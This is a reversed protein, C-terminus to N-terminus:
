PTPMRLRSRLEPLFADLEAFLSIPQHLPVWFFEMLIPTSGGDPTEEIRRYVAAIDADVAVHFYARHHIHRTGSGVFRYTMEGLLRLAGEPVELGAEEALERAAGAAATEHDEVTGGPPQIGVEPAHPERFVLLHGQATAYIVAKRRERVSEIM